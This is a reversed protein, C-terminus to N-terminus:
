RSSPATRPSRQITARGDRSGDTRYRDVRGDPRIVGYGTRRSDRDFTDIRGTREDIIASGARRGDAEYLDIRSKDQAFAPGAVALLAIALWM